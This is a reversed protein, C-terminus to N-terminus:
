RKLTRLMQKQQASIRRSEIAKQITKNHVWANLKEQQLYVMTSDWQKALATAFYWAQMMQVYYEDSQVDAVWSLYEGRFADDLYFSMLMNIGFRVTYTQGSQMWRRIEQLFEPLHIKVCKPRLGDWTAWNDIYPLFANLETVFMAYDKIRELLFGHLNNEEYYMHPLTHLFEQTEPEQEIQKALKRLEPTRVGIMTQPDVTPILKSQFARYGEDRLAFLKQQIETM